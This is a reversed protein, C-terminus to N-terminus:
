PVDIHPSEGGNGLTDIGTAWVTAGNIIPTDGNNCSAFSQFGLRVRQRHLTGHRRNAAGLRHGRRSETM